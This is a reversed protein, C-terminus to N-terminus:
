QIAATFDVPAVGHHLPSRWVHPPNAFCGLINHNAMNGM